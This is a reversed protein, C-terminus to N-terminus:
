GKINLIPIVRDIVEVLDSQNDMVEFTSKYAKTADIRARLDERMTPQQNM